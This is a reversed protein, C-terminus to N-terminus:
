VGNMDAFLWLCVFALCRSRGCLRCCMWPDCLRKGRRKGAHRAAQPPHVPSTRCRKAKCRAGPVGLSGFNMGCGIRVGRGRGRGHVSPRSHTDVGPRIHAHAHTHTHTEVPLFAIHPAFLRRRYLVPVSRCLPAGTGGTPGKKVGRRRRLPSHSPSPLPLRRPRCGSEQQSVVVQLQASLLLRSTVVVVVVVESKKTNEKKRREKKTTQLLFFFFKDPTSDTCVLGRQDM